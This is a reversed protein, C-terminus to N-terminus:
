LVTVAPINATEIRKWSTYERDASVSDKYIGRVFIDGKYTILTQLIYYNSASNSLNSNFMNEVILKFANSITSPRNKIYEILDNRGCYYEGVNLKENLDVSTPTITGNKDKTILPTGAVLRKTKAWNNNINTELSTDKDERNKIENNLNSIDNNLKTDLSDIRSDLDEDKQELADIDNNIDRISAATSLSLAEIRQSLDSEAKDIEAGVYEEMNTDSITIPITTGDPKVLNFGTLDVSM